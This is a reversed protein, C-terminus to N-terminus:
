GHRKEREGTEPIRISTLKVDDLRSGHFHVVGSRVATWPIQKTKWKGRQPDWVPNGLEDTERVEKVTDVLEVGDIGEWGQHTALLIKHPEERFPWLRDWSHPRRYGPPPSPLDAVAKRATLRPCLDPQTAQNLADMKLREEFPLQRELDATEHALAKRIDPRM